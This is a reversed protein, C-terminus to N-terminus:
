RSAASTAKCAVGNAAEVRACLEPPRSWTMFRLPLWLPLESQDRTELAPDVAVAHSLQVLEAVCTSWRGGLLAELVSQVGVIVRQNILEGAKVARDVEARVRRDLDALSRDAM